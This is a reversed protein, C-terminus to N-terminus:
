PKFERNMSIYSCSKHNASIHPKIHALNTISMSRDNYIYFWHEGIGLMFAYIIWQQLSELAAKIINVSM